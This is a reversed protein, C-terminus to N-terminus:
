RRRARRRRLRPRPVAHRRLAPSPIPGFEEGRVLLHNERYKGSSGPLPLEYRPKNQSLYVGVGSTAGNRPNPGFAGRWYGPIPFTVAGATYPPRTDAINNAQ